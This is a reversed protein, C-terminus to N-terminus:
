DEPDPDNDSPENMEKERNKHLREKKGHVKEQPHSLEVESSKTLRIDGQFSELELEARGAGLSFHFRKGRRTQTLKIPFSSEFGGNYTAVSISVDPEGAVGVEIDGNHTSFSYHGEAGLEGDYLIEGNVTTAEVSNSHVDELRVDGNVSEVSLEGDHGKVTVGANVSSLEARGHAGELEVEGEVSQLAVHRAGGTVHIDGRVTEVEIGAKTGAITVDGNVGSIRLEIGAPVTLQFDVGTPAGHWSIPKVSVLAGDREIEIQTRSSHEAQIRVAGRAWSAVEVDGAFNELELRAGPGVSFTTDTHTTLTLAALVAAVNLMM